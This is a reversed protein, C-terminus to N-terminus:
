IAVELAEEDEYLANHVARGLTRFNADRRDAADPANFNQKNETYQEQVCARHLEDGDRGNAHIANSTVGPGAHSLTLLRTRRKDDSRSHSIGVGSKRLAPALRILRGSLSRANRPWEKDHRTDEGSLQAMESLLDTATGTWSTRNDMFSLLAVAVPDAGLVTKTADKRNAEYSTMFDGAQWTSAGSFPLRTGHFYGECSAVWEAFDAMRPRMLLRTPNALGHVIADLLAGLIGPAEREFEADLEAETKRGSEPIPSLRLFICRDALDGRTAFDEIGNMVIPRRGDFIFEGDNSYLERCSFGGGTSLKCIADSVWSPLGSLNDFTLVHSNRASVALDREERPLSRLLAKNPDILKRLVRASTSKATGQEGVFAAIPYPGSSLAGLLWSVTLVFDNKSAVNMVKALAAISGGRIPIPLPQMGPARWFRVPADNVIRWVSASVEVISGDERALNLYIRSGHQATRLHLDYQPGDFVGRAEMTRIATKLSEDNPGSRHEWYYRRRIVRKFDKGDVPAVIVKKDEIVRAYAIDELQTQDVDGDERKNRRLGKTPAGSSSNASITSRLDLASSTVM